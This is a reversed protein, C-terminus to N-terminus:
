ALTPKKRKLYTTVVGYETGAVGGVHLHRIDELAGLKSTWFGDDLQRAMHTPVGDASAFIAVKEFEAEHDGSGTSEYGLTAFAEIFSTLSEQRGVGVPWYAFPLEAPWWWRTTDGAAWAVCNYGADRASTVEFGFEKLAPFLRELLDDTM